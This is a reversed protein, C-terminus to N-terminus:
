CSQGVINKYVKLCVLQTVGMATSRLVLMKRHICLDQLLLICKTERTVELFSM